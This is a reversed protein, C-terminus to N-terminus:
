NKYLEIIQSVCVDKLHKSKAYNMANTGKEACLNKDRRFTLIGEALLIHDQKILLGNDDNKILDRLGSADYLISPLNCAMAEIAAIGVGEFESTMVFVDSAILYDRVNTQNGLFFVQNEIKLKIALKKEFEELHGSGLHLYIFPHQNGLKEFAKLIDAHNKVPTCRGISIIIFANEDLGYKKRINRKEAINVAPYFKESDYWNNVLKTPNKFYKLENTYVSESISQFTLNFLKRASLRTLYHKIWTIKKTKFVNHLTMLAKRKTIYACISFYWFVNSRHIHIIDIRNERIISCIKKFYRWIYIPNKSERAFPRYFIKIGADSFQQVFNGQNKGTSIAYMEYNNERFLSAANVYMLEAGSFDIEGFIHLVREM